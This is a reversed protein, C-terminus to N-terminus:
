VATEVEVMAVVQDLVVVVIVTAVVAVIVAVEVAAALGALAGEGGQGGEAVIIDARSAGSESDGGVGKARVGSGLGDAM